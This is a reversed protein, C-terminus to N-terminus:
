RAREPQFSLDENWDKKNSREIEVQLNEKELEVKLDKAAQRGPLDNDYAIVVNKVNNKSILDNLIKNHNNLIGATSVVITHKPIKIQLYSIADIASETIIIRNPTKSTSIYFAGMAKDSGPAMGKFNINKIEAGTVNGTADSCLFVTNGRVDAYIKNKEILKDTVQTAISRSKLYNIAKESDQAKVPMILKKPQPEKIKEKRTSFSFPKLPISYDSSLRSIAEKFSINETKIIFDIAGVGKIDPNTFSNFRGTREDISVKLDGKRFAKKDSKVPEFGLKGALEAINLTRIRDLDMNKVEKTTINNHLKTTIDM